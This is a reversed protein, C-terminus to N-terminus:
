RECGLAWPRQALHPQHRWLAAVPLAGRSILAYRPRLNPPAAQEMALLYSRQMFVDAHATLADWERANLAELRESTAVQFPSPQSERLIPM